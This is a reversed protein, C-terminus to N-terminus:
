GPFLQSAPAAPSALLWGALYLAVAAAVLGDVRDMVGGHGPILRSSDKAGYRRKFGSEFLDGAQSIASLPLALLGMLLPWPHGSFYAVTWGAFLAAIVGGIAGSWTKGPSISPALKPGGVARGVFYAFIDTGWVVAFLYLIAVLGSMEGSRLLALAMAPLVAYGVGIAALTGLERVQGIGLLLLTPVIALILMPYGTLGATLAVLVIAVLGWAALWLPRDRELNSLTTWEYFVLAGISSALLRFPLGGMWTLALVVVALVVGSVVRLQLNSM